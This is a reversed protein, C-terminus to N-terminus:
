FIFYFYFLALVCIVFSSLRLICMLLDATHLMCFLEINACEGFELLALM